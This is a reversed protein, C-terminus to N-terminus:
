VTEIYVDKKEKKEAGRALRTMEWHLTVMNRVGAFNFGSALGMVVSLFLVLWDMENLIEWRM